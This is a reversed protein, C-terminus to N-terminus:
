GPEFRSSFLHIRPVTLGNNPQWHAAIEVECGLVTFLHQSKLLYPTIRASTFFGVQRNTLETLSLYNSAAGRYGTSKDLGPLIVFPV